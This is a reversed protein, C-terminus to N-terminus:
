SNTSESVQPTATIRETIVTLSDLAEGMEARNEDKAGRVLAAAPETLIGFGATGGAGKLAHALEGLQQFGQGDYAAKMAAVQENLFDVFEDVAERYIPNELPLTSIFQSDDDNTKLEAEEQAGESALLKAVTKVLTAAKFPSQLIRQAAPM